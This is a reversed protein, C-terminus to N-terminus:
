GPRGIRPLEAWAEQTWTGLRGAFLSALLVLAVVVAVGRAITAVVPDHLGALWQLLGAVISGVLAAGVFPLAILVGLGLAEQVLDLVWPSV